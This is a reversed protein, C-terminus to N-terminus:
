LKKGTFRAFILTVTVRAEVKKKIKKPFSRSGKFKAGHCWWRRLSNESPEFIRTRAFSMGKESFNESFHLQEPDKGQRM